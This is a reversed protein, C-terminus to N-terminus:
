RSPCKPTESEDDKQMAVMCLNKQFCNISKWQATSLELCRIWLLRTARAQYDWKKPPDASVWHSVFYSLAWFCGKDPSFSTNLLHWCPGLLMEAQCSFHCSGKPPFKKEWEGEPLLAVSEIPGEVWSPEGLNRTKNMSGSHRHRNHKSRLKEVQLWKVTCAYQYTHM